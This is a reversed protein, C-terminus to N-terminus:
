PKLTAFISRSMAEAIVYVRQFRIEKAPSAGFIAKGRLRSPGM